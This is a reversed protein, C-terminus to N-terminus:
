ATVERFEDLLAQPTPHEGTRFSAVLPKEDLDFDYHERLITSFMKAHSESDFEAIRLGSRAHTLSFGDGFRPEDQVASIVTKHVALGDKVFAQVWVSSNRKCRVKIRFMGLRLQSEAYSDRIDRFTKEDKTM